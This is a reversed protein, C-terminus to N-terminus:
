TRESGGGSGAPGSSHPPSTGHWRGHKHNMVLPISSLQCDGRQAISEKLHNPEVIRQLRQIRNSALERTRTRTVRTANPAPLSFPTASDRM